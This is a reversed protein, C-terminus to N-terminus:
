KLKGGILKILIEASKDKLQRYFDIKDKIDVEGTLNNTVRLISNVQNITGDQKISDIYKQTYIAQKEEAPVEVAPEAVPAPAAALDPAPPTPAPTDTPVDTPTEMSPDPAPVEEEAAPDVDGEAELIVKTIKRRIYERVLREKQERTLNEIKDEINKANDKEDKDQRKKLVKAAHKPDYEGDEVDKYLRDDANYKVYMDGTDVTEKDTKRLVNSQKEGASNPNLGGEKDDATYDKLDKRSKYKTNEPKKYKSKHKEAM